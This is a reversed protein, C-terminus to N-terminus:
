EREALFALTEELSRVGGTAGMATVCLAGVANAFRATCALDWGQLVGALFGAAWADGAGTADVAQVRYAPLRLETDATRVYCGAEGMKLGVVRVGHALLAEAVDVPEQKGTLQQAEALSPLFYDVHPLSPGVLAMWRGTADWVTDLATTVGLEKARRLIRATPEGDIGPLVLSGAVHLIKARAILDFDVDGERLTANAGLYHIFRREGDPDVMVMTASTHVVQDRRVGITDVGERELEAVIFDGFGDSGVKGIVGVSFGLRALTIGSNVACGGTHLSMEDVLELRGREPFRTVPRAVVDAVMIGLCLIDAM